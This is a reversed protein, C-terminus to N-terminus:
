KRKILRKIADPEMWKLGRTTSVIVQNNPNDFELIWGIGYVDKALDSDWYEFHVKDGIKYIIEAKM